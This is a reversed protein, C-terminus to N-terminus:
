ENDCKVDSERCHVANTADSCKKLVQALASAKTDGSAVHTRGFSSMQCTWSRPRPASNSIALQFVQEQLQAVARELQWVRQRLDENSYTKHDKGVQIRIPEIALAQISPVLVFLAIVLRM